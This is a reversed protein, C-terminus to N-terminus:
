LRNRELNFKKSWLFGLFWLFYLFDFIGLFLIWLGGLIRSINLTKLCQQQHKLCCFVFYWFFGFIGFYWFALLTPFKSYLSAFTFFPNRFRFVTYFWLLFTIQCKLHAIKLFIYFHFNLLGFFYDIFNIALFSKWKM